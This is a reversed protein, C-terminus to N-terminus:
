KVKPGKLQSGIQDLLLHTVAGSADRVFTIQIEEGKVFFATNSEALLEMRRGSPFDMWFRNGERSVTAVYGPQIEYGGTYADFVKAEIPVAKHEVPKLDDDYLAAIGREIKGPRAGALNTMVIVTLKDDVYRSIQATFGQWAGGHQILRHGHYENIEWGFGYSKTEGGNLKVPTWMLDLSSRKLLKETYLAADWKAMDLVTLYIAGDATTNLVPSVWLQNKLKGDELRYGAARNPIIDAEDIIRATTMGLPAFIKERLLDGYFKGTVKHILIGLTVYGPNSYNWKEGPQFDLPQAAILQLLEDETYDQRMNMKAYLGNSIGSTHTLLRRLTIDKWSATAEPIYKSIPDELSMKGEEILMMALTATFQKGISGSQYITEPTAAVNLEVNALGYGQAKVVKGDQVVAISLGPIKQAQMEARVYDDVKDARASASALSLFLGFLAAVLSARHCKM